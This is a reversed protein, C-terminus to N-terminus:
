HTGAADIPELLEIAPPGQAGAHETVQAIKTNGEFFKRSPSSATGSTM